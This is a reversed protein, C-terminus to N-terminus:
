LVFQKRDKKAAEDKTNKEIDKLLQRKVCPLDHKFFKVGLQSKFSSRCIKCLNVVSFFVNVSINLFLLLKGLQQNDNDVIKMDLGRSAIRCPLCMHIILTQDDYLFKPCLEAAESTPM